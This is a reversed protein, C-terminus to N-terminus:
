LVGNDQTTRKLRQAKLRELLAPIVGPAHKPRDDVLCGYEMADLVIALCARAHGLHHVHSDAALEEGNFWAALHRKCAAIYVSALVPNDRWNFPDYKDAGDMMALAEHYVATDPILTADIKARAAIDKPNVGQM